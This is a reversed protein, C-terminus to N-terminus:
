WVCYAASELVALLNLFRVTVESNLVHLKQYCRFDRRITTLVGIDIFLKSVCSVHAPCQCVLHAGLSTIANLRCHADRVVIGIFAKHVRLIDASDDVVQAPAHVVQAVTVISSM